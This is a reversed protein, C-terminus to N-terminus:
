AHGAASYVQVRAPRVLTGKFRYGAQFTASVLHDEEATPPPLVSVAEHYAPDFPQGVPDLRELGVVQLEKWLKRDVLRVADRVAEVTLDEHQATAIRELDDLADLLRASLAAQARDGLEAKERMVRKRYNDFEAALRAHRDRLEEYQEELRRVAETSPEFPLGVAGQQATGDPAAPAAGEPAAAPPQDLDDDRIVSEGQLEDARFIAAAMGGSSAM